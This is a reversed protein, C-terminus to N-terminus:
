RFYLPIVVQEFVPPKLIRWSRGHANWSICEAFEPNGLIQHLKLPFPPEKKGKGFFPEAWESEATLKGETAAAAAASPPVVSPSSAPNGGGIGGSLGSLFLNMANAAAGVGQNPMGQQQMQQGLGPWGGMLSPQGMNSMPNNMPFLASLNGPMMGGSQALLQQTMMLQQLQQLQNMGQPLQSLQHNPVQGMQQINGQDLAQGLDSLNQQQQQPNLGSAGFLQPNFGQPFGGQFLQQQPQMLYGQGAGMNFLNNTAGASGSTLGSLASLQQQFQPSAGMLSSPLMSSMQQQFQQQQLFLQNQAATAAANADATMAGSSGAVSNETGGGRSAQPEGDDANEQQPFGAALLTTDM